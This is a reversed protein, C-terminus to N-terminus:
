GLLGYHEEGQEDAAFAGSSDGASREDDDKGDCRGEMEGGLREEEEEGDILEHVHAAGRDVDEAIAEGADYDGAPFVFEWTRFRRLQV